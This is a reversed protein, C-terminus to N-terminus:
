NDDRYVDKIKFGNSKFFDLVSMKPEPKIYYNEDVRNNIVRHYLIGSKNAAEVAEEPTLEFSVYGKKSVLFKKRKM